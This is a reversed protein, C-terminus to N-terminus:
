SPLRDEGPGFPFTDVSPVVNDPLPPLDEIREVGIQQLFEFTTGFVLPRGVTDLRGVESILERGQLTAQHDTADVANSGGQCRKCSMRRLAGSTERFGGRDFREWCM